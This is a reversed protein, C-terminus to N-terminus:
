GGPAVRCDDDDTETKACPRVSPPRKRKRRPRRSRHTNHTHAHTQTDTHIQTYTHSNTHTRTNTHIHAHAHAHTRAYICLRTVASPFGVLVGAGDSHVVGALQRRRWKLRRQCWQKRRLAVTADVMVFRVRARGYVCACVCVTLACVSARRVTTIYMLPVRNDHFKNSEMMPRRRRRGDRYRELRIPGEDSEVKCRM